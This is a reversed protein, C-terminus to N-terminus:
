SLFTVPAMMVIQATGKGPGKGPIESFKNRGLQAQRCTPISLLSSKLGVLSGEFKSRISDQWMVRSLNVERPVPKRAKTGHPYHKRSQSIDHSKSSAKASQLVSCLHM